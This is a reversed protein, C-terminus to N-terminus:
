SYVLHFNLFIDEVLYNDGDSEEFYFYKSLATQIICSTLLSIYSCAQRPAFSPTQIGVSLPTHNAPTM